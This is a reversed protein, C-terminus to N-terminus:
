DNEKIEKKKSDKEFEEVEKVEYKKGACMFTSDGNKRAANLAGTFTNGEDKMAKAIAQRRKHLYKDSSDTDGDNDIDKDKRDDFNKAANPNVADLKKENLNENMFSRIDELFTRM